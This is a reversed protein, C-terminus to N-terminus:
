QTTLWRSLAERCESSSAARIAEKTLQTWKPPVLFATIGAGILPQLTQAFQAHFDEDPPTIPLDLDGAYFTVTMLNISATAALQAIRPLSSGSSDAFLILSTAGQAALGELMPSVDDEDPWDEATRYAVEVAIRPTGCLVDHEACEAQILGIEERLRALAQATPAKAPGDTALGVALTIDAFVAAEVLPSLPLSPNYPVILPKGAAISLVETLHRRLEAPDFTLPLAHYLADPGSALASEVGSEQTVDVVSITHGDLTQAQIHADDLYLRNKPAIRDHEATYQALYIPDPDILVTGRTADVLILVDDAAARMLDSLGTVAPIGPVPAGPADREAAIAVVKAWSISSAIAHATRYDEAVVVIEPIETLRRQAILAALRQPIEPMLPVGSRTRVVAATGLAMGAGLGTGRLRAM